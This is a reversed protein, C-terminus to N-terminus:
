EVFLYKELEKVDPLPSKQGYAFAEDIDKKLTKEIKEISKKNMLNNKLLYEEFEKLPDRLNKEDLDEESLPGRYITDPGFSFGIILIVPIMLIPINASVKSILPYRKFFGKTRKKKKKNYHRDFLIFASASILGISAIIAWFLRGVAM